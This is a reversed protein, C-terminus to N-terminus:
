GMAPLILHNMGKELANKRFNVYYRLKLEFENVVIGCDIAKVM